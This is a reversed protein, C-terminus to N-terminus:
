TISRVIHLPLTTIKRQCHAIYLVCLDMYKRNVFSMRNPIPDCLCTGINLQITLKSYAHLERRTDIRM